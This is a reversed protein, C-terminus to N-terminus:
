RGPGVLNVLPELVAAPENLGVILVEGSLQKSEEVLDGSAVEYVELVQEIDEAEQYWWLQPGDPSGNLFLSETLMSEKELVGTVEVSRASLSELWDRLRETKGPELGCKLLLEDTTGGSEFPRGSFGM